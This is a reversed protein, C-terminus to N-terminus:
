RSELASVLAELVDLMQQSEPEDGRRVTSLMRTRLTAQAMGLPINGAQAFRTALEKFASTSTVRDIVTDLATQGAFPAVLSEPSTRLEEALVRVLAPSVDSVIGSQWRFVDGADIAWGRAQLREALMSPRVKKRSCHRAFVTADLRFSPDPVLGLMAAVPDSELPPAGKASAYVLDDLEALETVRARDAQDLGAILRERKLGPPTELLIEIVEDFDDDTM